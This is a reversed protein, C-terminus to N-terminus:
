WVILSIVLSLLSLSIVIIGVTRGYYSSALLAGALITSTLGLFICLLMIQSNLSTLNQLIRLDIHEGYLRALIGHHKLYLVKVYIVAFAVLCNTLMVLSKM